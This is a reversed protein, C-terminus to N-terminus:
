GRCVHNYKTSVSEASVTRYCVPCRQTTRHVGRAKLDAAMRKDKDSNKAM